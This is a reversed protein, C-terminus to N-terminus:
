KIKSNEVWFETPREGTDSIYRSAGWIADIPINREVVKRGPYVFQEAVLKSNTYASIPKNKMTQKEDEARFLRITDGFKARLEERMPEFYNRLEDGHKMYLRDLSSLADLPVGHHYDELQSSIGPVHNMMDFTTRRLRDHFGKPMTTIRSEDITKRNSPIIQTNIEKKFKDIIEDIFPTKQPYEIKMKELHDIQNKM